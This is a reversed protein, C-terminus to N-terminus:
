TRSGYTGQRRVRTFTKIELKKPIHKHTHTYKSFEIIVFAMPPGQRRLPSLPNRNRASSKKRPYRTECFGVIVASRRHTLSPPIGFFLRFISVVGYSLFHRLSNGSEQPPPTQQKEKGLLSIRSRDTKSDTRRSDGGIMIARSKRRGESGMQVPLLLTPPTHALPTTM